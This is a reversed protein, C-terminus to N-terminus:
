ELVALRLGERSLAVSGTGSSTTYQLTVAGLQVDGVHATPVQLTVVFHKKTGGLLQGTAVRATGPQSTLDIPYGGVDTVTIGDGTIELSSASAFVQRTDSM